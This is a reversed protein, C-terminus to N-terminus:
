ISVKMRKKKESRKGESKQVLLRGHTQKNTVENKEEHDVRITRARDITSNTSCLENIGAYIPRETTISPV